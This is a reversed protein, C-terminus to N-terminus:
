PALGEAGAEQQALWSRYGGSLNALRRFGHQALIRYALYGRLGVQCFVVIPRDLPLEDLRERLEDLPINIAGPLSGKQHEQPNRVDLLLSSEPQTALEDAFIQRLHGDLVNAALFGALNVPDKASSYPPAYALELSQLDRVTLGARMATALVDLRKDVGDRGVVQAGLLRGDDPDFLVKLSLAESGPYYGAHAGPHLYVKDYHRDGKRLVKENM